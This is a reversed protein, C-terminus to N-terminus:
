GEFMREQVGNTEMEVVIEELLYFAKKTSFYVRKNIHPRYSETTSEVFGCDMLKGVVGIIKAKTVGGERKSLISAIKGATIGTPNQALVMLVRIYLLFDM